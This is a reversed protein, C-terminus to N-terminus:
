GFWLCHLGPVLVLVLVLVMVIVLVVVPSEVLLVVLVLLLLLVLMILVGADSRGGAGAGNCQSSLLSRGQCCYGYCVPRCRPLMATVSSDSRSMIPFRVDLMSVFIFDIRSSIDPIVVLSPVTSPFTSLFISLRRVVM